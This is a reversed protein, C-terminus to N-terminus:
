RYINTKRVEGAGRRGGGMERDGELLGDEGMIQFISGERKKEEDGRRMEM